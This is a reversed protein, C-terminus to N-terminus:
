YASRGSRYPSGLRKSVIGECDLKCAHAFVIEGNGEYHENLVIGPHPTRVLKALKHKRHEIPARRLGGEDTCIAESDAGCVSPWITV